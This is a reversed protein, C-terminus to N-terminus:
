KQLSQEDQYAGLNLDAYWTAPNNTHLRCSTHFKIPHGINSVMCPLCAGLWFVQRKITQTLLQEADQAQNDTASIPQTQNSQGVAGCCENCILHAGDPLKHSRFLM